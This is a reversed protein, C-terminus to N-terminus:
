RRAHGGNKDRQAGDNNEHENREVNGVPDYRGDLLEPNDRLPQSDAVEFLIDIHVTGIFDAGEGVRKSRHHVRLLGFCINGDFDSLAVEIDRELDGRLFVGEALRHPRHLFRDVTQLRFQSGGGGRLLCTIEVGATARFIVFAGVGLKQVTDIVGEVRDNLRQQLRDLDHTFVRCAIQAILQSLKGSLLNDQGFAEVADPRIKLSQYVLADGQRFGRFFASEVPAAPGIGKLPPITFDDAADVLRQFIDQGREVLRDAAQGLHSLSVQGDLNGAVIFAVVGDHFLREVLSYVGEILNKSLYGDGDVLDRKTGILNGVGALREGFAGCTLGARQLLNRGRHILDARLGPLVRVIRFLGVLQGVGGAPVCVIAVFLHLFHENGHLLDLLGGVFDVLDDLRDIFDGKLGIQQRQVCRHFRRSRAYM